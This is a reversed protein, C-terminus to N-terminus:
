PREAALRGLAERAETVYGQLDPDANRWADAVYRYDRAAVERKGLREAARAQALRALVQTGSTWTSYEPDDALVKRDEGRASWLLLRTLTQYQCDQCLTDPLAELGVIAAATDRRALLLYGGAAARGFIAEERLGTDPSTTSLSDSLRQVRRISATDGVSSWLPLGNLSKPLDGARLWDAFRKRASDAPYAGLLTLEALLSSARGIDPTWLAVAEGLHGRYMLSHALAARRFRLPLWISTSDSSSAFSRAVSVAAEGSDRAYGLPLWAKLLVNASARGLARQVERTRGRGPAAVDFALRIGEATVDDPARRLYHRAYMWGTELDHVLSALEIAHIYAPAYASDLAIARDFAALTNEARVGRGAHMYVEGLTHWADADDPYRRTAELATGVLRRYGAWTAGTGGLMLSDVAVLLSDRPALGHNLAGARMSLASALSDFGIRQWGLVRGLRWAALSFASDRALAREYYSLASDWAAHRFWQEGQLFAKMASPTATGLSAVRTLELRRNRGLEGLLQATISDSLADIRDAAGRRDIEALSRGEAVDFLTIRLRASDRGVPVLSGFVALRAGTRRGLEAAGVPDARGKWRRIVTTPPVTRLPGAGDLNRSLLDVLGERWLELSPSLVDFPAVALLDRDLAPTAARSRWLLAGAGLSVIVAIGLVAPLMRRPRRPQSTAPFFALARALEGATAFRDAPAIQLARQVAAAVNPPVTSRLAGLPPPPQIIRKAMMAQPTAGTFPLEGALMEHLMCGLAYVDSRADVAGAAAQEPSMYAATGIALGPSTLSEGGAAEVARAVGFDAVRAHGDALLINEPKVDRHVIGHRHAYDLADAVERIIALAVDVPLQPERRLRDRLTEGEVYPMTYWLRGLTEGSDLVPLIHPHDLRATLRIERLFREGGLSAGLDHHLLKLAVPRDHKRDLALYVTAMGGRGLERELLYRDRLAEFLSSEIAPVSCIIWQFSPAHRLM